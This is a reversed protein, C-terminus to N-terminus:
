GFRGAESPRPIRTWTIEISFWEEINATFLWVWKSSLDFAWTQLGTGSDGLAMAPWARAAFRGQSIILFVGTSNRVLTHPRLALAHWATTILPWQGTSHIHVFARAAMISPRGSQPTRSTFGGGDWLKHLHAALDKPLQALGTRTFLRKWPVPPTASIDTHMCTAAPCLHPIGRHSLPAGPGQLRSYFALLNLVDPQQDRKEMGRGIKHSEEVCKTDGIRTFLRHLLGVVEPHPRWQHHALIRLLTDVAPWRLWYVQEM